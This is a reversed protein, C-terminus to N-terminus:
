RYKTCAEYYYVEVEKLKCFDADVPITSQISSISYGDQILTDSLYDYYAGLQVVKITDTGKIYIKTNIRMESCRYCEKICASLSFVLLCLTIITFRKNM